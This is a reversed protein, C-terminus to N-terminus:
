KVMRLLQRIDVWSEGFDVEATTDPLVSRHVFTEKPTM